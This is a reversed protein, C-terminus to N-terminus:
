CEALTLRKVFIERIKSGDETGFAVSRFLRRRSLYSLWALWIIKGDGESRASISNGSCHNAVRTSNEPKDFSYDSGGWFTSSTSRPRIKNRGSGSGFKNGRFIQPQRNDFPARRVKHCDEVELEEEWGLGFSEFCFTKKKVFSFVKCSIRRRWLFLLLRRKRVIIRIKFNFDKLQLVRDLLDM